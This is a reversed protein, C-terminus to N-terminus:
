QGLPTARSGDRCTLANHSQTQYAIEAFDTLLSKTTLDRKRQDAAQAM